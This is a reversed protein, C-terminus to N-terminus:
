NATAWNSYPADFVIDKMAIINFKYGNRITITPAVNLHKELLKMSAQGMNQALAVTIESRLNSNDETTNNLKDVSYTMGGTILSMLFASGFTRFYHNNVQDSFGSQGSMDSGAMDGLTISSGDPFLVRQWAVYLRDQGFKVDNAYQGFLKSGQPILVFNGTTSDYVSQSVQATIAGALDSNITSILVAPIVAGTKLEFSKGQQRAFGLRWKADSGAEINSKSNSLFSLSSNSGGGGAAALRQQLEPSYEGRLHATLANSDFGKSSNVAAGYIGSSTSSGDVTVKVDTKLPARVASRFMDKQMRRIEEQEALLDKDITPSEQQVMVRVIKIDQETSKAPASTEKEIVGQPAEETEILVEEKIIGQATSKNSLMPEDPRVVKITSIQEAEKKNNKDSMIFAYCFLVIGVMVGVIVLPKKSMQLIKPKPHLELGTPNAPATDKEKTM